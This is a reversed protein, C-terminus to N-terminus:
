HHGSVGAADRAGVDIEGAVAAAILSARREKLLAITDQTAAGLADLKATESAIHNVITRQEHLPPLPFHLASIEECTLAGKTGGADDSLSRLFGYAAFFAWRLYPSHVLEPKPTVYAIHQNITAEFHLLTARGRTKGQGTLAVLISGSKVLPLSCELFATETVFQEASSTEDQNVVSSNLWPITGHVWYARNDRKPTSGNGVRAFHSVKWREWHVPIEGAWAIGSARLRLSKDAGRTVARTVVARRKEALLDLLRQKAAIMADIGATERDLYAAIARQECVPPASVLIGAIESAPIAPYSVGYSRIEVESLFRPERLAYKCFGRDLDKTRGRIVAFGTSVILNDPPDEVAAIAQLYTRVTSIIVDGHRVRRRARSPADGFRCTSMSTVGAYSDLDGIDIYRLEFDSATDEGLIEDNITALYKLRRYTAAPANTM